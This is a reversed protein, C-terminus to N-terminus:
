IMDAESNGGTNIPFDYGDKIFVPWDTLLRNSNSPPFYFASVWLLTDAKPAPSCGYIRVTVIRLRSGLMLPNRSFLFRLPTLESRSPAASPVRNVNEEAFFIITDAEDLRLQAVGRRPTAYFPNEDVM